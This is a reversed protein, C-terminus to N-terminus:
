GLNQKKIHYLHVKGVIPAKSAVGGTARSFFPAAHLQSHGQLGGLVKVHYHHSQKGPERSGWPSLKTKGEALGKATHM